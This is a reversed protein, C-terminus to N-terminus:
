TYVRCASVGKDCAKQIQETIEVLASNTSNNPKFKFQYPYCSNNEELFSYLRYIYLIYILKELIKSINSILSM